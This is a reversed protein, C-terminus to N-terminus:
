REDGLVIEEGHAIAAVEEFPGLHVAVVVARRAPRDLLREGGAGVHDEVDVPLAGALDHLRQGSSTTVTKM